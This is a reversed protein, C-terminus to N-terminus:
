RPRQPAAGRALGPAPIRGGDALGSGASTLEGRGGPGSGRGDAREDRRAGTPSRQLLTLGLRRELQTMRMSVAPQSMRHRSAARGLSGLEAISDLLDLAILDPTSPPLVM